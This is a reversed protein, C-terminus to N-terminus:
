SQCALSIRLRRPQLHQQRTQRPMRRRMLISPRLLPLLRM